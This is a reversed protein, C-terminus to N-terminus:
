LLKITESYRGLNNLAASKNVLLVIKVKDDKADKM